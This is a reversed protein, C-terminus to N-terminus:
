QEDGVVPEPAQPQLRWAVAEAIPVFNQGNLSAAVNTMFLIATPDPLDETKVFPAFAVLMEVEPLAEDDGAPAADKKGKKDEPEAAAAAVPTVLEIKAPFEVTRFPQPEEDGVKTTIDARIAACETHALNRIECALKSGPHVLLAGAPEEGKKEGKKGAAAKPDAAAADAVGGEPPAIVRISTPAFAGHYTFHVRDETFNQGNLSLEVFVELGALGGNVDFPEEEEEEEADEAGEGGGPSVDDPPIRALKAEAAKDIGRRVEATLEPMTFVVEGTMHDYSAPLTRSPWGLDKPFDIRVKQIETKVLGTTRIRVETCETLPGLSPELGLVRLDYINFPMTRDLFKRGDLSLEMHYEYYKVNEADLPPSICRVGRGGVDLWGNTLVDLPGVLPLKSIADYCPNIIDGADRRMPARAEEEPDGISYLPKCVFKVTLNQTPIRPPLQIHLLLETGGTIPASSPEIHSPGGKPWRCCWLLTSLANKAMRNQSAAVSQGKLDEIGAVIASSSRKTNSTGAMGTQMMTANPDVSQEMTWTFGDDISVQLQVAACGSQEAVSGLPSLTVNPSTFEVTDIDVIKGPVVVDLLPSSSRLRVKVPIFDQLLGAGSTTTFRSPREFPLGTVCVRVPTGGQLPALNPAVKYVSSRAFGIAGRDFAVLQVLESHDNTMGMQGALQLPMPCLLCGAPDSCGPRRPVGAARGKDEVVAGSPIRGCLLPRSRTAKFLTSVKSAHASEV